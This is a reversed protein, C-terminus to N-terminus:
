RAGAKKSSITSSANLINKASEDLVDTIFPIKTEIETERNGSFIDNRSIEPISFRRAGAMLQQLGAALKDVLTWMAIAGYPISKMEDEGVKKQVDYYGAFIEEATVGLEKVAPPLEDWNGNIAKKRDPNLAGEINSGVFGPIMAARGMCILKTFPAGLALAKFIHDERALGGAFAIDVVKVGKSALISAYEYTKSHLLISPVGWTEMMNWPSM